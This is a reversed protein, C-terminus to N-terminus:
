MRLSRTNDLENEEYEEESPPRLKPKPGERDCCCVHHCNSCTCRMICSPMGEPPNATICDSEKLATKCKPCICGREEKKCETDQM